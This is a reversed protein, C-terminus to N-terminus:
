SLSHPVAKRRDESFADLLSIPRTQAPSCIADKKALLLMRTDKWARPLLASAFSRNYLDTLLQWHSQDLFKLMYNSLGHADRSKKMKKGFAAEIVEEFSSLSIVEDANDHEIIPADLYPHPRM